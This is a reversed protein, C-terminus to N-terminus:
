SITVTWSITMTDAEGKNIVPFTTRALMTGVSAANFIGAETVPTTAPATVDPDDPGWTAEFTITNDTAVATANLANRAVETELATDTVTAATTGTGIAMHSMIADAVGAMRSAVWDKGTDVVLNNVERVVEGNLSIKLAGTLSLKDKPLM